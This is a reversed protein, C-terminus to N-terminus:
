FALLLLPAAPQASGNFQGNSKVRLVLAGYSYSIHSAYRTISIGQGFISSFVFILCNSSLERFFPM